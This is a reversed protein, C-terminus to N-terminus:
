PGVRTCLRSRPPTDSPSRSRASTGASERATWSWRPWRRRRPSGRPPRGPRLARWGRLGVKVAGASATANGIPLEVGASTFRTHWSFVQRGQQMRPIDIVDVPRLEGLAASRMERAVAAAAHDPALPTVDRAVIRKRRAFWGDRVVGSDAPQPAAAPPNAPEREPLDTNMM